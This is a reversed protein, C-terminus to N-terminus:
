LWKCVGWGSLVSCGWSVLGKTANTGSTIGGQPPPLKGLAELVAQIVTISTKNTTLGGIAAGSVSSSNPSLKSMIVQAKIAAEQPTSAHFPIRMGSRLDELFYSDGLRSGGASQTSSVQQAQALLHSSIIASLIATSMALEM